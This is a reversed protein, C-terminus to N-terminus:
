PNLRRDKVRSARKRVPPDWDTVARAEFRAMERAWTEPDFAEGLEATERTAGLVMGMIAATTVEPDLRRFPPRGSARTISRRVTARMAALFGTMQTGLAGSGSPAVLLAERLAIGNTALERALIEYFDLLVAEVAARDGASSLRLELELGAREVVDLSLSVLELFAEDLSPFCRYFSGQAVAAEAVVAPVTAGALGARRVVRRLAALLQSRRETPPM